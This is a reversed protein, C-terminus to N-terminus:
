GLSLRLCVGRVESYTTSAFGARGVVEKRDEVKLGRVM